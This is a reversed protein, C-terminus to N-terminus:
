RKHNPKKTIKKVWARTSKQIYFLPIQKEAGKLKHNHAILISIILTAVPIIFPAISILFFIYLFMTPTASSLAHAFYQFSTSFFSINGCEIHSPKLFGTDQFTCSFVNEGIFMTIWWLVVFGVVLTILYIIVELTIKWWINLIKAIM